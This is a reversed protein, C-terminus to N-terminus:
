SQPSTTPLPLGLLLVPLSNQVCQLKNISKKKKTLGFLLSNCYDIQSIVLNHVLIATAHPTLFPRLCNINRLQFYAARTVNNIHSNFSLTSDLIVGLSKVSPSIPVLSNNITLSFGKIRSLLLKTGVLLLLVGESVGESCSPASECIM